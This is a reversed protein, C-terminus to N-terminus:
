DGRSGTRAEGRPVSIAVTTGRDPLGTAQLTGGSLRVWEHVLAVGSQREWHEPGEWRGDDALVLLITGDRRQRLRIALRSIGSPLRAQEILVQVIRYLREEVTPEPRTALESLFEIQIGKARELQLAYDRLAAVLGLHDLSAPRLRFVEDRLIAIQEALADRIQEIDLVTQEIPQHEVKRVTLELRYLGSALGQLVVDHVTEVLQRREREQLALADLLARERRERSVVEQLRHGVARAHVGLLAAVRRLVEEPERGIPDREFLAILAGDGAPFPVVVGAAVALDAPLVARWPARELEASRLGRSAALDLWTWTHADTWQVPFAKGDIAWCWALRTDWRLVLAVAVVPTREALHRWVAGVLSQPDCEALTEEALARFWGATRQAAELREEQDISALLLALLPALEGLLEQADRRGEADLGAGWAALVLGRPAEVGTPLPVALVASVSSPFFLEGVATDTLWQVRGEELVSRLLTAVRVTAFAVPDPLRSPEGAAVVLEAREDPTWRVLTVTECRCRQRLSELLRATADRLTAVGGLADRLLSLARGAASVEEVRASDAILAGLLCSVVLAQAREAPSFPVARRRGIDLRGVIRGGVSLPAVLVDHIAVRRLEEQEERSVVSEPVATSLSGTVLTGAPLRAFGAPAIRVPSPKEIGDDSQALLRFEGEPRYRFLRLLDATFARRLLDAIDQWPLLDPSVRMTLECLQEMWAPLASGPVASGGEHPRTPERSLWRLRSDTM